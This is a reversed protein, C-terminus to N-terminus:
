LVHPAFRFEPYSEPKSFIQKQHSAANLGALCLATVFTKSRTFM